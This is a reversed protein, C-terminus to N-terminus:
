TLQAAQDPAWQQILSELRVLHYRNQESPEHAYAQRLEELQAGLSFLVPHNENM